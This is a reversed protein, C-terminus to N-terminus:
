IENIVEIKNYKQTIIWKSCFIKGNNSGIQSFPFWDQLVKGSYSFKVLIAKDTKRLVQYSDGIKYSYGKRIFNNKLDDRQSLIFELNNREPLRIESISNIRDEFLWEFQHQTPNNLLINLEYKSRTAGVYLVFLENLYDQETKMYHKNCFNDLILFVVPLTMGKSSHVTRLKVSNRSEKEDDSGYKLRMFDEFNYINDVLSYQDVMQDCFKILKWNSENQTEGDSEHIQTSMFSLGDVEIFNSIKEFINNSKLNIIEKVGEFLNKTEVLYQLRKQGILKIQSNIIKDLFEIVSENNNDELYVEKMYETIKKGIDIKTIKLYETFNIYSFRNILSIINLLYKCIRKDLFIKNKKSFPINALLLNNAINDLERNTRALINLDKYQYNELKKNIESVLTDMTWSDFYIIDRTHDQNTVTQIKYNEPINIKTVIFNALNQVPPGFRFTENLHILDLSNKEAFKIVEKWDAYQFGYLTQLIDGYIMIKSKETLLNEIVTFQSLNTDQCNHVLFGNAYFNHNDEVDIDYVFEDKIITKEINIVKLNIPCNESYGFNQSIEDVNKLIEENTFRYVSWGMLELVRTKRRDQEQRKLYKHSKGDIEIAIKLIPNAIDIKYHTPTKYKERLNNEPIVKYEAFWGCGLKDFILKQPKTMGKGNGGRIKLFNEKKNFSSKKIKDLVGKKFVVNNDGLQRDCLTQRGKSSIKYLNVYKKDLTQLTEYQIIDGEKVDKAEKWGDNETWIKNNETIILFKNHNNKNYRYNVSIKYLQKNNRIEHFGIIRKIEQKKTVNNYTLINLNEKNKVIDGIYRTTGDELLVPTYYPFCEDTFIYEYKNRYEKLLTENKKFLQITEYVLDDFTWLNREKKWKELKNYLNQTNGDEFYPSQNNRKCRSITEIIYDAEQRVEKKDLNPYIHSLMTMISQQLEKESLINIKYGLNVFIKYCFSHITSINLNYKSNLRNRLEGAATTSFSFLLISEPKVNKEEILYNVRGCLTTSKGSGSAALIFCRKKDTTIIDYQQKVFNM